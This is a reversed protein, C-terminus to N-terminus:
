RGGGTTGGSNLTELYAIIDRRDADSAVGPIAMRTGPAFTSPSKLFDDLTTANWKAGQHAKLAASYDFGSAGAINRQTVGFLDPGVRAAGGQQFDHCAACQTTALAQGHAADGGTGETQSVTSAAPHGAGATPGVAGEGPSASAHSAPGSGASPIGNLATTAMPAHALPTSLVLPSLAAMQLQRLVQATERDCAAKDGQHARQKADVVIPELRARVESSVNPLALEIRTLDEACTARAPESSLCPLGFCLGLALVYLQTRKAGFQPIRGRRSVFLRCVDM